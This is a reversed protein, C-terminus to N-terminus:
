EEEYRRRETRTARRASILRTRPPQEVFAVVVLRRRHSMGLLVYRQEEISHDPDLMLLALPDGFVTMGEEFTVRHKRVNSAAKGPDWEFLYGM